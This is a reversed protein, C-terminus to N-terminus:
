TPLIHNPLHDTQWIFYGIGVKEESAKHLFEGCMVTISSSLLTSWPFSSKPRLIKIHINKTIVLKVSDKINKM